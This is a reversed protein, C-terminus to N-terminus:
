SIFKASATALGRDCADPEGAAGALDDDIAAREFSVKGHFGHAHGCCLREHSSAHRIFVVCLDSNIAAAQIALGARDAMPM